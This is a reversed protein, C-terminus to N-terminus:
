FAIGLGAGINVVGIFRSENIRDNVEISGVQAKIALDKVEAKAGIVDGSIHFFLAGSMPLRLSAGAGFGIPNVTAHNLSVNITQSGEVVGGSSNLQHGTLLVSPTTAKVIGAQAHAEIQVRNFNLYIAPGILAAGLKWKSVNNDWAYTRGTAAVYSNAKDIIPDSNTTNENLSGSLKIGFWRAIRRDYSVQGFYGSGALGALPDNLKEKALEGVPLSYGGTVSFFNKTDQAKVEESHLMLFFLTLISFSFVSKMMPSHIKYIFM